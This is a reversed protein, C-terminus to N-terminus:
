KEKFFDATRNMAQSFSPDIINHGGTPYEFLELTINNDKLIKSLNRSYDISVVTDDIAHHIQLATGLGDLYNTPVVQKWFESDKSFSGHTAFLEDRRKKRASDETPPRYSTDSIRFAQFDEYTYVAGSWIVAKPITQASVISRFVVNGAMSHGWLGINDKDVGELTSLASYANLTDVIYDGSYYAGHAIGDSTGHGRLDPKYVVIGRRSFYDAYSVYNSLTSYISPPIYGHVFVIAPWGTKPPTGKPISLYGNIILGDSDYPTEYSTYSSNGTVLSMDGFSSKYTRERLYPITMEQFPMPASTPNSTPSITVPAPITNTPIPAATVNSIALQKTNDAQYRNLVVASVIGIILGSLGIAGYLLKIHTRKPTEIPTETATDTPTTPLNKYM